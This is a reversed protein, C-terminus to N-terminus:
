EVIPKVNSYLIWGKRDDTTEVEAWGDKVNGTPSLETGFTLPQGIKEYKTGAGSRLNLTPTNVSYSLDKKYNIIDMLSVKAKPTWEGSYVETLVGQTYVMWNAYTGDSKGHKKNATGSVYNRNLPETFLTNKPGIEGSASFYDRENPAVITYGTELSKKQAYSPTISGNASIIPRGTRCSHLVVVLTGSKNLNEYDNSLKLVAIFDEKTTVAKGTLDNMLSNQSGHGVIHIATKDTISNAGTWITMDNPNKKTNVLKVELGELEIGDIVRNESFAYPSNHAYDKFLPDVAFFRGIRPDHMRFTYNLSNGEGKIEDDKEQGQFGYRYDDSSGTRETIQM